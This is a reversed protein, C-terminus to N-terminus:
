IKPRLQWRNTSLMRNGIIVEQGDVKALIGHGPLVEFREPAHTGPEKPM